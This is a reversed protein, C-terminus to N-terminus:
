YGASYAYMGFYAGIFGGATKTSLYTGDIDKTVLIWQDPKISYYFDYFEGRADIKLYIPNKVSRKINQENLTIEGEKSGKQLIIAENGDKLTLGLFYYHEENQFVVLGAKDLSNVPNFVLSSSATCYAHQQRRGIFSPQLLSGISANRPKILLHSDNQEYWKERPTRIFNWYLALSSDNFEDRIVFNGNLPIRASDSVDIAPKTNSYPVKEQGETIVPWGDVWKVPMLFTQRGTNYHNEKYPTCGLFISWWEGSSTKVFDAHGTSTIPQPRKPDLNRQTLIPNAPGPVYQGFIHKSRFVVESHDESTGGEAAILYYWGDKKFVHPGEIWIPKKSIDVGGTILIQRPGKLKLNKYDFEQIWIARHGNYLPEGEPPGNNLIYAKGDEDFFISPDIGDIEPLWVPDSWPGAPDTATVVFNGGADVLTNVLYFLGDNFEIAPAFVGRSIQLSDFDVQTPRDLVHGIQNWNVLDKSHFVPIGPFYCFSSNVLYFDDNVAVISPDPYFGALIPNLYENEQPELTEYVPDYGQYEFWDFSAYGKKEINKMKNSCSAFLVIAIVYSLTVFGALIKMHIKM